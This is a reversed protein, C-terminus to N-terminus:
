PKKYYRCQYQSSAFQNLKKIQTDLTGTFDYHDIFTEYDDMSVIPYSVDSTPYYWYNGNVDQMIDCTAVQVGVYGQPVEVEVTKSTSLKKELQNVITKMEASEFHMTSSVSVSGSLKGLYEGKASATIDYTELYRSVREFSDMTRTETSQYEKTKTGQTTYGLIFKASKAVLTSPSYDKIYTVRLKDILNGANGGIELVRAGTIDNSTGGDGGGSISRGKNTTFSIYDFANGTRTAISSIYEDTGLTLVKSEDGGIGGFRKGDLFVADVRVGSRIGITNFPRTEFKVGGGSDGFIKTEISGGITAPAISSDPM